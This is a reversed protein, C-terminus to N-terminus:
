AIIDIDDVFNDLWKSRQSKNGGYCIPFYMENLDCLFQNNNTDYMPYKGYIYSIQKNKIRNSDFQCMNNLTHTVLVRRENNNDTNMGSGHWMNEHHISIGGRPIEISVFEYEDSIDDSEIDININKQKKIINNKEIMKIFDTRHKNSDIKTNIGSKDHFDYEEVSINFLNNDWKHSGKIYEITGNMISVDDLPLWVTVSKLPINYINSNDNNNNYRDKIFEFQDSIYTCDQHFGLSSGCEKPKWLFDDQAIRSGYNQIKSNNSDSNYNYNMLQTTLNHIQSSLVIQALKTDSKWVNCIEKTIHPYTSNRGGYWEDPYVGTDFKGDFVPIFRSILPDMLSENLFNEFVIYGNKHFFECHEKTLQPQLIGSDGVSVKPVNKFTKAVSVRLM